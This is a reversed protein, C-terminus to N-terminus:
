RKCPLQVKKKKKKKIVWTDPGVSTARSADHGLPASTTRSAQLRWTFDATALFRVWTATGGAPPGKGSPSLRKTL